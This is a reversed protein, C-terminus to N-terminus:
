GCPLSQSPPAKLTMGTFLLPAVNGGDVIVRTLDSPLHLGRLWHDATNEGGGTSQDEGTLAIALELSIIGLSSGCQPLELSSRADVCRRRGVRHLALLVDDHTGAAVDLEVILSAVADNGERNLLLRAPHPLGPEFLRRRSGSPDRRKTTCSFSLASPISANTLAVNRPRAMNGNATASAASADIERASVISSFAASHEAQWPSFPTGCCGDVGIM